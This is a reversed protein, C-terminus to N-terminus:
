FFVSVENITDRQTRGRINYEQVFMEELYSTAMVILDDLTIKEGTFLLELMLDAEEDTIEESDDYVVDAWFAPTLMEDIFAKVSPKITPKESPPIVPAMESTPAETTLADTVIPDTTGSATLEDAIDVTTSPFAAQSWDDKATACSAILLIIGASCM